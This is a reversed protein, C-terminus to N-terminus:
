LRNPLPIQNRDDTKRTESCFPKKHNEKCKTKLFSYSITSAIGLFHFLLSVEVLIQMLGVNHRSLKLDASCDIQDLQKTEPKYSAVIQMEALLSSKISPM